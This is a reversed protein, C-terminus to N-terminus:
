RIGFRTILGGYVVIPKGSTDTPGTCRDNLMKWSAYPSNMNSVSTTGTTRPDAYKISTDGERRELVIGSNFTTSGSYNLSSTRRADLLYAAYHAQALNQLNDSLCTPRHTEAADLAWQLVDPPVYRVDEGDVLYPYAFEIHEMPTM